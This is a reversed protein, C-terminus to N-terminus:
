DLFFDLFLFVGFAGLALWGLGLWLCAACCVAAVLLGARIGDQRRGPETGFKAMNARRWEKLLAQIIVALIFLAGVFRELDVTEM